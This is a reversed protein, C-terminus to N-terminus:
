ALGHFRMLHNPEKENYVCLILTNRQAPDNPFLIKVPNHIYGREAFLQLQPARSKKFLKLEAATQPLPVDEYGEEVLFQRIMEYAYALKSGAFATRYEWGDSIGGLYNSGAEPFQVRMPVHPESPPAEETAPSPEEVWEDLIFGFEVYQV